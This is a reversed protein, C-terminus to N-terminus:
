EVLPRAFGEADLGIISAVGRDAGDPSHCNVCEGALYDGYAIDAKRLSEEATSM